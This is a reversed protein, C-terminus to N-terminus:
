TQRVNQYQKKHVKKNHAKLEAETKFTMGCAKCEFKALGSKV